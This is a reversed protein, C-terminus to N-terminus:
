PAQRRPPPDSWRPAPLAWTVHHLEAALAISAFSTRIVATTDDGRGNRAFSGDELQRQMLWLRAAKWAPLAEGRGVRDALLSVHLASIYPWDGTHVAAPLQDLATRLDDSSLAAGAILVHLGAAALSLRENRNVQYHFAAPGTRCRLAFLAAQELREVEVPLGAAQAAELALVAWATSSLDADADAIQYRWGGREAPGTRNTQASNLLGIIRRSTRVVRALRATDDLEGCAFSLAILTASLGYIKRDDEHLRELPLEHADLISDVARLIGAGHAPHTPPYGASFLAILALSTSSVPRNGDDGISGDSRQASLLFRAARDVCEAASPEQAPTPAALAAAILMAVTWRRPHVRCAQLTTTTM